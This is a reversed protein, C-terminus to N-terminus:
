SALECRSIINWKRSSTLPVLQFTPPTMGPQELRYAATDNLLIGFGLNRETFGNNHSHTLGSPCPSFTSTYIHAYIATYSIKHNSHELPISFFQILIVWNVMFFTKFFTFVAKVKSSFTWSSGWFHFIEWNERPGVLNTINEKKQKNTIPRLYAEWPLRDWLWSSTTPQCKRVPRGPRTWLLKEKRYKGEQM